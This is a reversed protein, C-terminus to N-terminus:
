TSSASQPAGCTGIRTVENASQSPTTLGLHTTVFTVLLFTLRSLTVAELSCEKTCSPVQLVEHILQAKQSANSLKRM